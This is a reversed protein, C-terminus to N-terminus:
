QFILRSCIRFKNRDEAIHEQSHLESETGIKLHAERDQVVDNHRDREHILLRLGTLM